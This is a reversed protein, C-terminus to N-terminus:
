DANQKVEEITVKFTKKTSVQNVSFIGNGIHNVKYNIRDLGSQDCGIHFIFDNVFQRAEKSLVKNTKM